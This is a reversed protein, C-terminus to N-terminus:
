KGQHEKWYWNPERRQRAVPRMKQEDESRTRKEKEKEMEEEEEYERLQDIHALRATGNCDVYITRPSNQVILKCPEPKQGPKPTYMLDSSQFSILPHRINRSFMLEAPTGQRNSCLRSSRYTLLIKQLYTHVDGKERSWLKLSRKITQVMREVLGNSSAHYQPTQVAKAGVKELWQIIDESIFEKANDTVLMNPIGFRAFTSQLVKKVTATSRDQCIFAEPWGTMADVLILIQGVNPVSAWDMHVREYAKTASEWNHLKREVNSKPKEACTQCRRIYSEVESDMGPWWVNRKLRLKTTSMGFHVEHATKILIERLIPPIVPRTGLMIVHNEITLAQSNKKYASEAPTCNRWDNKRIRNQIGCLLRDNMTEQIIEKWTIGIDDSWHIIESDSEDEDEDQNEFFHMRSLADVHPINAGNVYAIDYDYGMMLIAWRQIRASAHKPLNKDPKFIFELARHDTRIFFKRGLLFKEARKVAWIIALAEKETVAYNREAATLTRSLYMIPHNDQSLIAGIALESADCTLTLEKHASYPKVIPDSCLIEKLKEFAQQQENTWLFPTGNKRLRNIPECIKAFNPIKTSYFNILGVFKEVEKKTKPSAINLVKDVLKRDPKIGENSIVHGLFNISTTHRISKDWNISVNRKNLRELLKSSRHNLEQTDKAYILIDDQYVIIGDLGLCINEIVRQFIASATKVGFPLRNFKFLGKTTNITTLLKSNEDLEVQWYASKLDYKGFVKADGMKSFITEMDPPHYSDNLLFKNITIKYDCCLRLKGNPRRACVLPSAWESGGEKIESIVGMKLMRSLEEDVADQMPIPVERVSCFIPKTGDQIKLTAKANRIVGLEEEVSHIREEHSVNNKRSTLMDRGILGFTKSSEVVKFEQIDYKNGYRILANITGIIKLATGDYSTLPMGKYKQLPAQKMNEWMKSSIISCSAGTDKQMLLNFNRKQVEVTINEM